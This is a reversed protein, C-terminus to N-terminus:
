VKYSFMATFISSDGNRGDVYIDLLDEISQESRYLNVQDGFKTEHNFNVSFEKLTLDKNMQENLSDLAWEVYKANNTHHNLDLDSYSVRHEGVLDGAAPTVLKPAPEEIASESWSDFDITDHDKLLREVRHIRRSEINMVLWSTTIKIIENGDGDYIMYDRLSFLGSQCKHWTRIKITEGWRPERVIQVNIRSLVWALGLSLLDNYGFGLTRSHLYAMNQSLNLLSMPKFRGYLDVEYSEIEIEREIYRDREM